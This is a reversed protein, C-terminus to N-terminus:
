CPWGQLQLPCIHLPKAAILQGIAQVRGLDKLFARGKSRNRQRINNPEGHRNARAFAEDPHLIHLRGEGLPCTAGRRTLWRSAPRTEWQNHIEALVHAIGAGLHDEPDATDSPEADAVRWDNCGIRGWEGQGILDVFGRYHDKHRHTLLLVTLNGGYRRLVHLAAAQKAIRCSDIVLWDHPPVRVAVSEGYGPGFVFVYLQGGDLSAPM